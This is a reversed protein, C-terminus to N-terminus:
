LSNIYAVVDLIAQDDPLTMAMPRMQMGFLDKAHSGRVGSKYNKLQTVLYWDNQGALKPGNLAQMGEGDAGHCTACLAYLGQGKAADGSITAASSKSEFTLIYAVVNDIAQDDALTMAMPRMQMGFVDNPDGGRVGDKFAIIQRKLYWEEQGALQSGNMAQMGEGAVGHCTACLAYLVKGAGPDGAAQLEGTGFGLLGVFVVCIVLWARM